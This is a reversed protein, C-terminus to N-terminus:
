RELAVGARELAVTFLRGIKRNYAQKHELMAMEGIPDSERYPNAKRVARLISQVHVWLGRGAGKRPKRAKPMWGSRLLQEAAARQARWSGM